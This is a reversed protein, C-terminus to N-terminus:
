SVEGFTRRLGSFFELAKEKTWVENLDKSVFDGERQEGIKRLLVDLQTAITDRQDPNRHLWGRFNRETFGFAEVGCCGAVCNTECSRLLDLLPKPLRVELKSM